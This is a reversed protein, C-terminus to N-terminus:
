LPEGVDRAPPRPCCRRLLSSPLRVARTDSFERGEGKEARSGGAPLGKPDAGLHPGFCTRGENEVLVLVVNDPAADRPTPVTVPVFPSPAWADTLNRQFVGARAVRGGTATTHNIFVYARDRVDRIYLNSGDSAVAEATPASAYLM